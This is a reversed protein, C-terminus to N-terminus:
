KGEMLVSQNRVDSLKSDSKSKCFNMTEYIIDDTRNVIHEENWRNLPEVDRNLYYHSKIYIPKKILWGNNGCRSNDSQNIISLNGLKGVHRMHIEESNKGLEQEWETGKITQPLRHEISVMPSTIIENPHHENEIRLLHNVCISSHKTSYEIGLGKLNEIFLSDSLVHKHNLLKEFSYIPNNYDLETLKFNNKYFKGAEVGSLWLRFSISEIYNICEIFDEKSLKEDLYAVYLDLIIPLNIHQKLSNLFNLSIDVKNIGTNASSKSKYLQSYRNFIEYMDKLVYEKELNNDEVYKKFRLYLNAEDSARLDKTRFKVYTECFRKFTADNNLVDSMPKWYKYYLETHKEEDYDLLLYGRIKEYSEMKRGTDNLSEFILLPDDGSDCLGLYTVIKLSNKFVIEVNDLTLEEYFYKYNGLILSSWNDIQNNRINNDPLDYILMKLTDNDKEQLKLKPIVGKHTTHILVHDYIENKWDFKDLPIDENKCFACIATWLLMMTTIRQQGDVVWTKGKIEDIKKEIDKLVILGVFHGSTPADMMHEFLRKCDIEKWKYERQWVPILLLNIMNYLVDFFRYTDRMKRVGEKM